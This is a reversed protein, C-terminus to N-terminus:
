IPSPEDLLWPVATAHFELQVAPFDTLTPLRLATAHCMWATFDDGFQVVPFGGFEDLTGVFHFWGAYDHLGSALRANHYVEGDKHPDIGPKDLFALFDGSFVQDHV